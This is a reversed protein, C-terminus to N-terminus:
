SENYDGNMIKNQVKSVLWLIRQLDSTTARLDIKGDPLVGVVVVENFDGLAGRLVNDPQKNGLGISTPKM